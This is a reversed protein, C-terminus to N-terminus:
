ITNGQTNHTVPTDIYQSCVQPTEKRITAKLTLINLRNGVNEIKDLSRM